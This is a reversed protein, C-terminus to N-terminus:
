EYNTFWNKDVPQIAVPITIKNISTTKLYSNETPLVKQRNIVRLFQRNNNKGAPSSPESMAKLSYASFYPKSKINEKM